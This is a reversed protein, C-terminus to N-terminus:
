KNKIITYNNDDFYKKLINSFHCKGKLYRDKENDFIENLYDYNVKDFNINEDLLENPLFYIFKPNEKVKNKENYIEIYSTLKNLSLFSYCNLKNENKDNIALIVDIAYEKQLNNLKNLEENNISLCSIAKVDIFCPEKDTFVVYDPRKIIKNKFIESYLEGDGQDLHIFPIKNKNLYKAFKLEIENGFRFNEETSKKSTDNKTTEKKIGEEWYEFHSDICKIAPSENKSENNLNNIYGNKFNIEFNHIIIKRKFTTKRWWINSFRSIWYVKFYDEKELFTFYRGADV